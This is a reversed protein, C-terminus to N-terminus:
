KLMIIFIFLFGNEGDGPLHIPCCKTCTIYYLVKFVYQKM